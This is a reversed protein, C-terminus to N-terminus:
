APCSESASQRRLLFRNYCTFRPRLTEEPGHLSEYPRRGWGDKGIGSREDTPLSRQHPQPDPGYSERFSRARVLHGTLGGVNAKPVRAATTWSSWGRAEVKAIGNSQKQFKVARVVQAIQGCTNPQIKPPRSSLKTHNRSRGPLNRLERNGASATCPGSWTTNLM